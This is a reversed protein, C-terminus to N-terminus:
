QRNERWPKRAGAFYHQRAAGGETDIKFRGHRTVRGPLPLSIAALLALSGVSVKSIIMSYKRMRKRGKESVQPFLM